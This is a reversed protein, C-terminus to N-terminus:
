EGLADEEMLEDRRANDFDMEQSYYQSDVHEEPVHESRDVRQNNGPQDDRRQVNAHGSAWNHEIPYTGQFMGERHPQPPDNENGSLPSSEAGSASHANDEEDADGHQASWTNHPAQARQNTTLAIM